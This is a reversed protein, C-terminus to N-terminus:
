IRPPVVPGTVNGTTPTASDRHACRELAASSLPGNDPVPDYGQGGWPHCRALRRAALWGGKLAGYREIAELAYESCTPRFRCGHGVFPSLTYRYALVIGRLLWALPSM